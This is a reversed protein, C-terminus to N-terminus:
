AKPFIYSSFTSLKLCLHCNLFIFYGKEFRLERNNVVLQRPGFNHFSIIAEWNEETSCIGKSFYIIFFIIRLCKVVKEEKHCEVTTGRRPSANHIHIYLLMCKAWLLASGKGTCQPIYKLIDKADDKDKDHDM